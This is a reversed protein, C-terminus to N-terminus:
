NGAARHVVSHIVRDNEFFVSFGSYDWRTIPPQLPGGATSVTPYETLPSGYGQRVSAMSTGASPTQLAPASQMSDVLLVDAAAPGSILLFLSLFLAVPRTIDM